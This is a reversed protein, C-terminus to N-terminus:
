SYWPDLRGTSDVILVNGRFHLQAVAEIRFRITRYLFPRHAAYDLSLFREGLGTPDM